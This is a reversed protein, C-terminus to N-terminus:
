VKLIPELGLGSTFMREALGAQIIDGTDKYGDLPTVIRGRGLVEQLRIAKALGPEDSDRLIYLMPIHVFLEPLVPILEQTVQVGVTPYGADMLALTDFEKSEAHILLYPYGVSEIKDQNKKKILDVNFPRWISGKEQRYKPGACWDLIDENNPEYQLRQELDQLVEDLQQHKFFSEIFAQDDRRYNISRVTKGFLINPVAYRRAHFWIQEKNLKTYCSAFYPKVGLLRSYSTPDTIQRKHFYPIGEQINKFNEHVVDMSLSVRPREEKKPPIYEGLPQEQKLIDIAEKLTKHEYLMVFDIISGYQHCSFCYFHDSWITLSPTRGSGGHFPCPVQDYSYHHQGDLYRGAYTRLDIRQKLEDLDM